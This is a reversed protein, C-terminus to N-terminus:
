AARAVATVPLERWLPNRRIAGIRRLGAIAEEPSAAVGYHCGAAEVEARFVRQEASLRGKPAKLELFAAPRGPVIICLDAVGPRVGMAKLRAGTRKSRSEGNPVHFYVVGKSGCLRLTDVVFRQLDFESM